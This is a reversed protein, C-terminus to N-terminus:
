LDLAIVLVSIELFGSDPTAVLVTVPAAAGVLGRTDRAAHVGSRERPKSPGAPSVETPAKKIVRNVSLRADRASNGPSSAGGITRLIQDTRPPMGIFKVFRFFRARRLAFAFQSCRQCPTRQVPEKSAAVRGLASPCPRDNSMADFMDAVAVIRAELVIARAPLGLPYSSGELREHHQAITAAVPWPLEMSEFINCGATVHTRM